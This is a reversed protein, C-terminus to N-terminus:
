LSENIYNAVHTMWRNIAAASRVAAAAPDEPSMGSVPQPAATVESARRSGQWSKASM